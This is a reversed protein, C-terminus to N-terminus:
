WLMGALPRRGPDTKALTELRGSRCLMVFERVLDPRHWGRHAEDELEACAAERTLPRRYVRETTLADYV